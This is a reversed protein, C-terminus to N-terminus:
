VARLAAWVAPVLHANEAKTLDPLAKLGHRQVEATVTNFQVKGTSMAGGLWEMLQAFTEGEPPPPPPAVAPAAAVPTEAPGAPLRKFMDAPSEDAPPPPPPAAPANARLEATIKAVYAEDNLGRKKRWHGNAIVAKNAAHIREDWPLGTSDVVTSAASTPAVPATPAPPPPASPSEASPPPPAGVQPAAPATPSQAAAADSPAAAAQTQPVAPRQFVQALDPPAFLDGTQAHNADLSPLDNEGYYTSYYTMLAAIGARMDLKSDRSTDFIIQM